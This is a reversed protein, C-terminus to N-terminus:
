INSIMVESVVGRGSSIANIMRTASVRRISFQTYLREFYSSQTNDDKADSNSVVFGAGYHAIRACFDRLRVQETDDFGCTSYSTFSSTASLPKYPPDIYFLANPGALLETNEFDGCQIDVKELLKSVALLNGSDCIKPNSYRGHPVNFEGRSNVRYLGNFCTKNLFIFLAAIEVENCLCSNFESRKQLYFTKREEDSMSIYSEQLECLRDILAEVDNQIVRYTSILKDNIDNIVVRKINPYRQLLHMFVAGGGVFPEVFVLDDRVGLDTPFSKVIEDLLQTKGGAWKVFPKAVSMSM